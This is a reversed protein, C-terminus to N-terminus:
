HRKIKNIILKKENSELGIFYTSMIICIISSLTVLIFRVISTEMISNIWVPLFLSLLTIPIIKSFVEKYFQIIPFSLLDKLLYLKVFILITYIIIFITYSTYAPFGLKFLIYSFPFPLCGITGVFLYYKKIKGTACAANTASNGLLDILSGIITLKLFISSYDPVINLWMKLIYDSELIFPIAFILLLLYSYKSSKCILTFMFDRNGEAYSKVIQPNIATTFNIVFQKITSDIQTAIGRAANITVGFFINSILNIGQTNFLYAGTGFLNWGAFNSIEKFTQRDFIFSYKCEAFNKRCYISYILRIILAVIIMLLAYLKLRDISSIFLLYAIILKLVVEIISIYAFINMREHAIITANYPVSILNIIFTIISCHLVWNATNIREIPINLKNNLFWGGVIEAVIAISLALCFQITISTSFVIKLRNINQKGLEFTIFRSISTSLSTSLFSFMSVIGGIVNYIGYDSIGIAQLIVRSTFLSVGLTLFLRIYLFITNKAIKKSKEQNNM